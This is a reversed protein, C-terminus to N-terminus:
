LVRAVTLVDVAVAGAARLATAAARATAGSTWVDDIVLVARAHVLDRNRVTFAGAVNTDRARPNLAVQSPTDRTRGILTLAVPVGLDRALHRALVASQNFGRQRLRHPHLPIPAVLAVDPSPVRPLMATALRRGLRRAGGYKFSAIAQAVPSAGGPHHYSAWARATRIPADPHQCAACRASIPRPCGCGPCEPPALRHVRTWCAACFLERPHVFTACAACREPCLLDSAFGVLPVEHLAM